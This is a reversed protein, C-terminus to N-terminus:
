NCSEYKMWLEAIRFDYADDIDISAERSMIYPYVNGQYFSKEQQFLKTKCLYIAGNLIYEEKEDQRRQIRGSESFLLKGSESILAQYNSPHAQRGVSVVADAQKKLLLEVSEKMHLATRLPSTPQLVAFFDYSEEKKELESLVSLIVDITSATDGADKRARLFPVEAGFHEAIKAYELSDTSVIIKEFLCSQIAAEITYALLPKGNMFKINKDPLGKSGSRAPIIALFTKNQIMTVREIM